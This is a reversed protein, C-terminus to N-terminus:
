PADSQQRSYLDVSSSYLFDGRCFTEEELVKALRTFLNSWVKVNKTLGLVATAARLIARGQMEYLIKPKKDEEIEENEVDLVQRFLRCSLFHAQRLQFYM